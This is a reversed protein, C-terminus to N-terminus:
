KYDRFYTEYVISEYASSFRESPLNQKLMQMETVLDKRLWDIVFKISDGMNTEVTFTYEERNYYVGITSKGLVLGRLFEAIPMKTKMHFLKNFEGQNQEYTLMLRLFSIGRTVTKLNGENPFIVRTGLTNLGSLSESISFPLFMLNGLSYELETAKVQIEEKYEEIINSYIKIPTFNSDELLVKVREQINKIHFYKPYLPKGSNNTYLLSNLNFWSWRIDGKQTICACPILNIFEGPSFMIRRYIRDTDPDHTMCFNIHDCSPIYLTSNYPQDFLEDLSLIDVSRDKSGTIPTYIIRYTEINM